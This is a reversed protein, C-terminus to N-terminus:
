KGLLIRGPNGVVTVGKPVDRIVVTGAGVIANEGITTSQITTSNIGLFAGKKLYTFGGCSVNPSVTSFEEFRCNHGITANMNIIVFDEIVTEFNITIGPYLINGKGLTTKAGLWVTSHVLNPFCINPNDKLKNYIIKKVAPSSIAIVVAVEKTIGNLIDTGGLVEFGYAFRGWKQSNDDLFGKIKFEGKEDANYAVYGGVDGAGIIYLDM